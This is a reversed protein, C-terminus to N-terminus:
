FTEKTFNRFFAVCDSIWQQLRPEPSYDPSVEYDATSLGHGGNPYIHLEYPVGNEALATAFRLSNVAPVLQDAATAWIFAPTTQASVAEDLNLTKLFEAKEEDTYGNLLNEHTGKYAAKNTIVPYCLGVAAVKCDVSFGAKKSVAAYEVALNATLHGGASFGVVFIEDPNIFLEKAHKKMYDVACGLEILQDPYKAGESVISYTLVAVQFGQALFRAAVGEGERKSVHAYAGGPVVIVAPRKWEVGERPFVDDLSLCDLTGGFIGYEEQLSVTLTKM